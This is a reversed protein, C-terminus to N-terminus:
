RGERAELCHGDTLGTAAFQETSREASPGGSPIGLALALVLCTGIMSIIVAYVWRSRRREILYHTTAIDCFIGEDGSNFWDEECFECPCISITIDKHAYIM